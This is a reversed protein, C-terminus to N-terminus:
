LPAISTHAQTVHLLGGGIWLWEHLLPLFEKKWGGSCVCVCVCVMFPDLIRTSSNQFVLNDSLSYSSTLLNSTGMRKM